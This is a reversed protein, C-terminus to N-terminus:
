VVQGVDFLRPEFCGAKADAAGWGNGLEAWLAGANRHAWAV